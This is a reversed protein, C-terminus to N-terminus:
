LMSAILARTRDQEAKTGFVNAAFEDVGVEAMHEIGARVTAENGIVALDEPGALGERDLMARYSPLQGYVVFEKAARARADAVDDTVCVPVSAGCIPAIRGAEKAAAAMTPIIHTRITEPGTMWLSTGDAVAGALRLMAPAMAAIVVKPAAAAVQIQGRGTLTEGSYSIAEGKLLPMLIALYDKMHRAPKEFSMGWMGEVVVQHSLGIGLTFRDGTAQQATLAQQALMMPHRPYTPVVATGFHMGPVERGAVCIASITDLGFIQASWIMEFGLGKANRVSEVYSDIATPMIFLGIRM